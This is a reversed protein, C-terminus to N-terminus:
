KLMKGIEANLRRKLKCSEKIKEAEYEKMKPRTSGEIDSVTGSIGDPSYKLWYERLINMYMLKFGQYCKSFPFFLPWCVLANIHCWPTESWSHSQLATRRLYDSVTFHEQDYEVAQSCHRSGTTQAGKKRATLLTASIFTSWPLLSCLLPWSHPKKCVSGENTRVLRATQSAACVAQECAEDMACILLGLCVCVSACVNLTLSVSVEEEKKEEKKVKSTFLKSWGWLNGSKGSWDSVPQGRGAKWKLLQHNFPNGEAILCYHLCSSKTNYWRWKGM